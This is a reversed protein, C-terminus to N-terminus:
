PSTDSGGCLSAHLVDNIQKRLFQDSPAMFNGDKSGAIRGGRGVDLSQAFPVHYFCHFPAACRLILVVFGTVDGFRQASAVGEVDDVGVHPAVGDRKLNKRSRWDQVREM